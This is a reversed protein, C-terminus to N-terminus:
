NTKNISHLAKGRSVTYICHSVLVNFSEKTDTVAYLIAMEVSKANQGNKLEVLKLVSFQLLFFSFSFFFFFFLFILNLLYRVLHGQARVEQCIPRTLKQAYRDAADKWIHCLIKRFM